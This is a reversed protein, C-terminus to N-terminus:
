RPVVLTRSTAGREMAEFAGAIGDLGVSGGVLAGLDLRGAAFHDALLAQARERDADGIRLADSPEGWPSQVAEERVDELGPLGYVGSGGMVGLVAQTM